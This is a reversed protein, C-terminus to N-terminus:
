SFWDYHTVFLVKGPPVVAKGHETAVQKEAM